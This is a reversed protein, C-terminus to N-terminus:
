KEVRHIRMVENGRPDIVKVAIRKHKGPPFPLSSTGSMAEFRDEDVVGKLARALKDWASRDPFFAQTICFTRGDYDGDIFWAAVKGADTPTISNEVPNYIDVGDLHVVYNGDADPGEVRTRPQGFVTFLHAEGAKAPEKLLGNMGPNVSPSINAMHVMCGRKGKEEKYEDFVASANGDFSFGAVVLNEYGARNTARIAQEVQMATVPGYQPGFVVCVNAEGEPDKDEPGQPVWRGEAHLGAPSDQYMPELRTFQMVKNNPFRVGDAKLLRLMNDMYAPINQTDAFAEVPRVEFTGELLEPEGDFKGGDAGAEIIGAEGLSMEPPQVAEVTFPGTVRVVGRVVEPKDVMEEQEANALICANVEDMKARWAKRYEAVADQLEKPWDPDTDFPVDWHEWKLSRPLEWRRRDAETVAKRGETREKGALKRALNDRVDKTVKGLATNCAALREALVPEYRTFIPDLNTNQAISKLTVHPIPKYVLGPHPSAGKGNPQVGDAVGNEDEGKIRYRDFKATLLRQRAIAIAVRSTDATIWRRGWQEAVLATTGGGCTPDLVLDGPRTTMLM